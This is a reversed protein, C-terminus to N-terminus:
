STLSEDLPLSESRQDASMKLAQSATSGEYPPAGAVNRQDVSPSRFQLARGHWSAKPGGISRTLTAMRVPMEVEPNSVPARANPALIRNLYRSDFSLTHDKPKHWHRQAQRRMWELPISSLGVNRNGGGVDSHAGAFWTQIVNQHRCKREWLVPAFPARIEHIALAHCATGVNWALREEHYGEDLATLVTDWVGVFHLPLPAYRINDGDARFADAEADQFDTLHEFFESTPGDNASQECDEEHKQRLAEGQEAIAALTPSAKRLEALDRDKPETNYYDWAHGFADMESKPIIGFLETLGSLSRAAAAGRSFGLLYVCDNRYYNNVLFEYAKQVLVSLGKGSASALKRGVGGASEDTGVGWVYNVIQPAGFSDHTRLARAFKIVNTPQPTSPGWEPANTTGDICVILNKGFDDM